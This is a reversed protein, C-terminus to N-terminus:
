EQKEIRIQHILPRNEKGTKVLFYIRYHENICKYEGIAFTASQRTGYHLVQFSSVKNDAFFNKLIFHAQEKSFIGSEGPLVLEIKDNLYPTLRTVDGKRVAEVVQPPLPAQRVGQSLLWWPTLLFIVFPLLQKIKEM